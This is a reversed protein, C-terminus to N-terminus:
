AATSDAREAQVAKYWRIARRVTWKSYGLKEGIRASSLGQLHLRYAEKAIAQYPPPPTQQFRGIMKHFANNVQRETVGRREAIQRYTLGEQKLRVTEAAIWRYINKRPQKEAQYPRVGTQHFRIANRVVDLSVNLHQAIRKRTWGAELLRSAESALREYVPM